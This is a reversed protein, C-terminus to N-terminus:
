QLIRMMYKIRNFGFVLIDSIYHRSSLQFPLQFCDFLFSIRLQRRCPLSICRLYNGFYWWRFLYLCRLQIGWRIITFLPHNHPTTWRRSSIIPHMIHIPHLLLNLNVLRLYQRVMPEVQLIYQLHIRITKYRYWKLWMQRSMLVFFPSNTYSRFREMRSSIVM